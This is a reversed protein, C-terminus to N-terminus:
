HHKEPVSMLDNISHIEYRHQATFDANKRYMSWNGLVHYESFWRLGDQENVPTEEIMAQLWPRGHLQEVRHRLSLWDERAVAHVETVFSRHHDWPIGLLRETLGQYSGDHYDPIYLINPRGDHHCQYPKTMWTDTDQIVTIDTGLMDMAALKLAQQFLWTNRPDDPLMWRRVDPYAKEIDNDHLITWEKCDIGNYELIMRVRRPDSPTVMITRDIGVLNHDFQLSVCAVPLRYTGSFLIRTVINMM